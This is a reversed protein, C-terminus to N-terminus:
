TGQRAKQPTVCCRDQQLNDVAVDAYRKQWIPWQYAGLTSGSLLRLNGLLM